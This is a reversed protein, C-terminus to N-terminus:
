SWELLWIVAREESEFELQGESRLCVAGWEKLAAEMIENNRSATAYPSFISNIFNLWAPTARRDLDTTIFPIRTTMM